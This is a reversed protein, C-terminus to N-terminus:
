VQEGVPRYNQDIFKVAEEVTPFMADALISSFSMLEGSCRKPAVLVVPINRSHAWGMEWLTGDSPIDGTLVLLVDCTTVAAFDKAVYNKMTVFDTKLDILSGDTPVDENEAPDFYEVGYVRCANSARAREEIVELGSRGQMKGALYVRM